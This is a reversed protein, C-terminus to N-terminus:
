GFLAELGIGLDNRWCTTNHGGVFEHYDVGYGRELLLSHMRRNCDLLEELLGVDMWLRIGPRPMWRVLQMAVTEMGGLEFAGSQSLACGFIEPLRLAAYVAMLGGMSSGLIGYAGPHQHLDLLHLQSAALPLVINKLFGLTAESCAYEVMRGQGGGNQLLALAVPQIRQQAILNDVIQAIRVRRLYDIGDLVLVLPVPKTVAPHYLYVSRKGNVTMGDTSVQHRSLRGRFHGSSPHALPTPAAEPMYFFANRGGVGNPVSKTNLPDLIHQKTRPDYFSYELYANRPLKLSVAWVERSIQKLPRPREEWEGLDSVLRPATRGHWVFTVTEGQIIPNGEERARQYLKSRGDVKGPTM